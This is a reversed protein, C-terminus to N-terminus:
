RWKKTINRQERGKQRGGNYILHPDILCTIEKPARIEKRAEAGMGEEGLCLTM